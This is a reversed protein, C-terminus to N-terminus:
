PAYDPAAPLGFFEELTSVGTTHMETALPVGVWRYHWPEFEYGTVPTSGDPYRLVWGFRYANAALWQGATTDAFCRGDTSCGSVTDLIDMAMGTQHESYGPRASTLDAGATGLQNVYYDYASVQVSYSRYGSQAVLQVGIENLAAHFMEELSAAADARMQYGNPNPMDAPLDVLDPPVYDAGNQLPRLKNVVVWPSTPDDISLAAKDFAAPPPTPEPTFAPAPIDPVSASPTATDSPTASAGVRTSSVPAADLAGGGFGWVGTAFLTGTAVVAAVVLTAVAAAIARNRRTRRARERRM